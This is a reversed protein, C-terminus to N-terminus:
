SYKWDNDNLKPISHDGHWEVAYINNSYKYINDINKDPKYSKFYQEHGMHEINTIQEMHKMNHIHGLTHMINSIQRIYVTYQLIRSEMHGINTDNSMHKKNKMSKMHM